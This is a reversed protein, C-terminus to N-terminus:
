STLLSGNWHKASLLYYRSPATIPHTRGTGKKTYMRSAPRRGHLPGHVLVSASSSFILSLSKSLEWACHKLLFPSVGDLGPAKRTNVYCLYWAVVDKTVVIDDLPLNCLLTLHPPQREPEETAVKSSFHAAMLDARTQNTVVLDGAATKLPSIRDQTVIDQQQKM